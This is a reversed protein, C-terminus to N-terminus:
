SPAQRYGPISGTLVDGGERTYRREEGGEREGREWEGVKGSEGRREGRGNEGRGSEM